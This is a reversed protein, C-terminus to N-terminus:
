THVGLINTFAFFYVMYVWFHNLQHSNNNDNIYSSQNISSSYVNKKALKQSVFDHLCLSMKMNLNSYTFSCWTFGLINTGSSQNISTLIYTEEKINFYVATILSVTSSTM